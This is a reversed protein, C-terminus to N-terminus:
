KKKYAEYNNPDLALVKKYYGLANRLYEREYEYKASSLLDNIKNKKELEEREKQDKIKQKQNETLCEDLYVTEIDDSVYDFEHYCDDGCGEQPLNFGAFLGGGTGSQFMEKVMLTANVDNQACTRQSSSLNKSIIKYSRSKKCDCNECQKYSLQRKYSFGSQAFLSFSFLIFGILFLITHKMDRM